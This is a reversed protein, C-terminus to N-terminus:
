YLNTIYHNMVNQEVRTMSNEEEHVDNTESQLM